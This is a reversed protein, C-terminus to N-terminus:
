GVIKWRPDAHALRIAEEVTEPSDHALLVVTLPEDPALTNQLVLVKRYMGPSVNRKAIEDLVRRVAADTTGGLQHGLFLARLEATLEAIRGKM